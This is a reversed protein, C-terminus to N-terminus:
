SRWETERRKEPDLGEFKLAAVVDKSKLSLDDTIEEMPEGTLWRDRLLWTPIGSVQPSGFRVRPDILVPSDRGAVHWRAALDDEYDFEKFREGIFENWALQGGKNGLLLEAGAHVALDVGDTKLRLTAFPHDTKFAGAFYARAARIDALKMGAKKCAAAVALEILQLYSLKSRAERAGLTTNRHWRSVTQSHVHAYRAAERVEYSPLDLRSRWFEREPVTVTVQAV